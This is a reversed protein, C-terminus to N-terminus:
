ALGPGIKMNRRSSTRTIKEDIMWTTQPMVLRHTADIEEDLANHRAISLRLMRRAGSFGVGARLDSHLLLAM